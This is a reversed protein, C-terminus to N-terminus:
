LLIVQTIRRTLQEVRDYLQLDSSNYWQEPKLPSTIAIRTAVFEMCGGKYQVRCDHRDLLSLIMGFPIQGRFEEFIVDKEGEYGDFWKEQQPHWKYSNPLWERAAKSKGTGTAGVYVRIEPPECRPELLICKLAFLGKHYKVYQAPLEMAVERMRKGNRIMNCAADIDTRKGQGVSIQGFQWVKADLGYNPGNEKFRTWESKSQKGKKCYLMAERSTGGRREMHNHELLNQLTNWRVQGNFEIYGQLHPTHTEEGEEAGMVLFTTNHFCKLKEWIRDIDDPNNWTFCVHREARSPM